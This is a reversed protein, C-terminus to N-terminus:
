ILFFINLLALNLTYRQWNSAKEWTQASALCTQKPNIQTATIKLHQLATWHVMVNLEKIESRPKNSIDGLSSTPFSQHPLGKPVKAPRILRTLQPIDDENEGVNTNYFTNPQPPPPRRPLSPPSNIANDLVEIKDSFGLLPSAPCPSLLFSTNPSQVLLQNDVSQCRPQSTKDEHRQPQQTDPNILTPRPRHADCVLGFSTWWHQIKLDVQSLYATRCRIGYKERLNTSYVTM